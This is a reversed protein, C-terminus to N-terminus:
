DRGRSLLQRINELKGSIAGLNWDIVFAIIGCGVLIAAAIWIM